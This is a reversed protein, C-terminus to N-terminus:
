YRCLQPRYAYSCLPLYAYPSLRRYAYRPLLRYAYPARLWYAYPIAVSVRRPTASGSRPRPGRGSIRQDEAAHVKRPRAHAHVAARVGTHWGFLLVNREPGYHAGKGPLEDYRSHYARLYRPRAM